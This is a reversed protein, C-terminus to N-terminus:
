RLLGLRTRQPSEHLSPVHFYAHVRHFELDRNNLDLDIGNISNLVTSKPELIKRGGHKGVQVKLTSQSPHLHNMETYSLARYLKESPDPNPLTRIAFFDGVEFIELAGSCLVLKMASPMWVVLATLAAIDGAWISLVGIVAPTPSTPGCYQMHRFALNLVFALAAEIVLLIIAGVLRRWRQAFPKITGFAIWASQTPTVRELFLAQKSCHDSTQEEAMNGRQFIQNPPYM